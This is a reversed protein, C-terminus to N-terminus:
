RWAKHQRFHSCTFDELGQRVTDLAVARNRSWRWLVVGVRGGPQIVDCSTMRMLGRKM